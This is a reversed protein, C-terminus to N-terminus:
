KTNTGTFLILIEQQQQRDHGRLAM